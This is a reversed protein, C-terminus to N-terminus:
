LGFPCEYFDRIGFSTAVKDKVRVANFHIGYFYGLVQLTDETLLNLVDYYSDLCDRHYSFLTDLTDEGQRSPFNIIKNFSEIPTNSVEIEQIEKNTLVDWGERLFSPFDKKFVTICRELDDDNEYFIKYDDYTIFPSYENHIIDDIKNNGNQIWLNWVGNGNGNGHCDSLQTWRKGSFEPLALLIEPPCNLVIVVLSTANKVDRVYVLTKKNNEIDLGMSSVLIPIVRSSVLTSFETYEESSINHNSMSTYFDTEQPTLPVRVHLLTTTAITQGNMIIASTFHYNVGYYVTFFYKM